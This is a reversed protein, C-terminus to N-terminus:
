TVAAAFHACRDTQYVNSSAALQVVVTSIQDDLAVAQARLQKIGQVTCRSWEKCHDRAILAMTLGLQTDVHAVQQACTLLGAYSSYPHQHSENSSPMSLWNNPADTNDGIGRTHRKHAVPMHM